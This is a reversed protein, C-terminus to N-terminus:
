AQTAAALRFMSSVHLFTNWLIQEDGGGHGNGLPIGLWVAGTQLQPHTSQFTLGQIWLSKFPILIMQSNSSSISVINCRKERCTDPEVHGLRIYRLAHVGTGLQQLSGKRGAFRCSFYPWPLSLDKWLSQAILAQFGRLRLAVGAVLKRILQQDKWLQCLM